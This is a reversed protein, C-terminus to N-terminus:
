WTCSRWTALKKQAVWCVARKLALVVECFLINRAKGQYKETQAHKKYMTETDNYEDAPVKSQRARELLAWEMYIISFFM